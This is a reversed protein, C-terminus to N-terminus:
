NYASLFMGSTDFESLSTSSNEAETWKMFWTQSSFLLCINLTDSVSLAFCVFLRFSM